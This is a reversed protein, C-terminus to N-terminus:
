RRTGETRCANRFFRPLCLGLEEYTLGTTAIKLPAPTGLNMDINLQFDLPESQDITAIPGPIARRREAGDQAKGTSPNVTYRASM